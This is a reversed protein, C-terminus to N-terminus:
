ILLQIFLEGGSDADMEKDTDSSSTSSEKKDFAM